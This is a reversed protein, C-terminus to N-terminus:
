INDFWENHCTMYADRAEQFTDFGEQSAQAEYHEFGFGEVTEFVEGLPKGTISTMIISAQM